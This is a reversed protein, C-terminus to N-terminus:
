DLGDIYARAQPALGDVVGAAARVLEAGSPTGVVIWVERDEEEVSTVGPVARLAALLGVSLEDELPDVHLFEAVYAVVHWTDNGPEGQRVAEVGRVDPDTTLRHWGEEGDVDHDPLRRIEDTV